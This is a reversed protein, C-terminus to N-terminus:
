QFDRYCINEVITFTNVCMNDPYVDADVCSILQEAAAALCQARTAGGDDARLESGIGLLIALLAIRRFRSM